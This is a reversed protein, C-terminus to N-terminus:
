TSIRSGAWHLVNGAFAEALVKQGVAADDIGDHVGDGRHGTLGHDLDAGTQRGERLGQDLAQPVERHDLEVAVQRHAQAFVRLQRHDLRIHELDIKPRQGRLHQGLGRRGGQAFDAHHAIQGVVDGRGDQEMQQRLDVHDFVLM